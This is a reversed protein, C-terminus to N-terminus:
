TDSCNGFNRYIQQGFKIELVAFVAEKTSSKAISGTIGIIEPKFKRIIAHSELKLLWFLFNLYIKKM